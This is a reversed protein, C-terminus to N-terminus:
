VTDKSNLDLFPANFYSVDSSTNWNKPRYINLTLALM